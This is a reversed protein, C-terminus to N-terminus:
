TATKSEVPPGAVRISAVHAYSMLEDLGQNRRVGVDPSSRVRSLYKGLILLPHRKVTTSPPAQRIQVYANLIVGGIM